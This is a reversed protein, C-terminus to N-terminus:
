FLFIYIYIYEGTISITIVIVITLNKVIYIIKSSYVLNQGMNM